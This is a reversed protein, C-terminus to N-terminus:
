QVRRPLGRYILFLGVVALPTGIVIWLTQRTMFSGGVVGAGQLAWLAGVLLCVLGPIVTAWRVGAANM